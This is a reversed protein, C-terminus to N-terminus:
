QDRFGLVDLMDFHGPPKGVIWRAAELAGRAFNDRNFAQHKIELTEGPGAFLVTHEGVIEGARITQIGIEKEKREGILGHRSYRAVENLDRRLAKAVIQAMKMATGSPADKKHRHHAEIIEIDYDEGLIPVVEELLKFLVNVGVSMNPAMVCPITKSFNKIRNVEKETFGTTGIVMPKKLFSATQLSNLTAETTSFDILVEAKNLAETLNATLTIGTQKAGILQGVDQGLLPHGSHEVAGVLQIGKTECALRMLRQGMKGAAGYITVKAM